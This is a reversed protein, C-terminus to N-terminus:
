AGTKRRILGGMTLLGTGLLLLSAPEPTPSTPTGTAFGTNSKGGTGCTSCFFHLDAFFGNSNVTLFNAADLGTVGTITLTLDQAVVTGNACSSCKTNSLDLSFPKYPGANGNGFAFTMTPNSAASGGLPTISTFAINSAGISGSFSTNFELDGGNLKVGFGSNMAYSVQIGGAIDTITITGVSGVVGINNTTLNIVVPSASVNSVFGFLLMLTMWGFAVALKKM